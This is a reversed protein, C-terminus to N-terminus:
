APATFAVLTERINAYKQSEMEGTATTSWKGSSIPAKKAM